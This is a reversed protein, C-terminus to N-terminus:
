CRAVSLWVLSPAQRPRQRWALQRVLTRRVLLRRWPRGTARRCRLAAAFLLLGLCVAAVDGRGGADADAVVAPVAASVTGPGSALDPDAVALTGRDGAAPSGVHDASAHSDIAHMGLLGALLVLVTALLAPRPGRGLRTRAVAESMAAM